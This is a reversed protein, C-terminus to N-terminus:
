SMAKLIEFDARGPHKVRGIRLIERERTQKIQAKKLYDYWQQALKESKTADSVMKEYDTM